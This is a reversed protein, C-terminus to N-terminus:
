ARSAILPQATIPSDPFTSLAFPKAGRRRTLTNIEAMFSASLRPYM